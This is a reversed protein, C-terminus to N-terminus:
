ANALIEDQRRLMNQKAEDDGDDHGLVHLVGHAVLYRLETLASHGEAAAQTAATDVSIIVEGEGEDAEFAIVDTPNDRGLLRANLSTIREDDVLALSLVELQAGEAALTRLAAEQLSSLDVDQGSLNRIEIETAM